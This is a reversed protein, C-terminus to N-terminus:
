GLYSELATSATELDVAVPFPEASARGTLGSLAGIQQGVSAALSAYLVRYGPELVSAAATQYSGLLARLVILGTRVTAARSSFANRPWAFEFDEEIPASEGAGTLLGALARAHQSATARGRRLTGAQARSLGKTDLAKDYFDELLFEGSVGFNAFALEDDTAAGAAALWPMGIAATTVGATSVLFRRRNM